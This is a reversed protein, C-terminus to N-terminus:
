KDVFAREIVHHGPRSMNGETFGHKDLLARTDKLEQSGCLMVRDHERDLPPLDLDHTLRGTELLSTIRGQHRFAERTVTPYYLLQKGIMEGLLEHQPLERQIREAYALEAAQRCGHVLIVTEFREYVEPDRIVSMFPALGTGTSLLYLRRGPLLNQLLLTGSAKRGVLVTDGVRIHQLRSTLPGDSVKISLFELTEEWHPSVMSYARLLPRGDVPLGIMTFQGSQFRFGPDRTTTFSFLRDTWHHVTLVHAEFINSM